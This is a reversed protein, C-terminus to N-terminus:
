SAKVLGLYVQTQKSSVPIKNNIKAHQLDPYHTCLEQCENKLMILLASEASLAELCECIHMQVDLFYPHMTFFTEFSVLAELYQEELKLQLAQSYAEWNFAHADMRTLVEQFSWPYEWWLEARNHKYIAFSLPAQQLLALQETIIRKAAIQHLEGASINNLYEEVSLSQANQELTQLLNQEERLKAAESEREAQLARSKKEEDLRREQEEFPRIISLLSLENHFRLSLTAEFRKLAELLTKLLDEHLNMPRTTLFRQYREFLWNIASIRTKLKSPYIHEWTNELRANLFNIGTLFGQWQHQELLAFALYSMILLDNSGQQMLKLANAILANHDPKEGYLSSLKQIEQEVKAYEDTFKFQAQDPHLPYPSHLVTNIDNYNM